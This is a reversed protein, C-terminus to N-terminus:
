LQRGRDKRQLSEIQSALSTPRPAEEPAAPEPAPEQQPAPKPEPKKSLAAIKNRATEDQKEASGTARGKEEMVVEWTVDGERMSVFVGRLEGLEAPSIRDLQHGLYAVLDSATVSLEEFSDIVKRKAADPDKADETAITQRAVARAEDLIDRPLVARANERQAIAVLRSEKVRIEDETALVTYVTEGKSNLRQGVVTRGEPPGFEKSNRIKQARKEVLKSLAITRAWSVNNELDLAYAHVLRTDSSEYMTASDVLMNGYLSVATRILHVSAGTAIKEEWTGTQRNMESGVPRHYEAVGAFGPRKCEKLLASRFREVDRPRQLAMLYRANVAAQERAAVATAATEAVNQIEKGEFGIKVVDGGSRVVDGGAPIM